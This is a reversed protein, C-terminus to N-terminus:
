VDEKVANLIAEAKEPDDIMIIALFEPVGKLVLENIREARSKVKKGCMTAHIEVGSRAMDNLEKTTATDRIRQFAIIRDSTAWQILTARSVGTYDITVDIKAKFSDPLKGGSIQVSKRVVKNINNSTNDVPMEKNAEDNAKNILNTNTEM